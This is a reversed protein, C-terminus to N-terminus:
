VDFRQHVGGNLGVPRPVLQASERLEPYRQVISAYNAKYEGFVAVTKSAESKSLPPHYPGWEIGPNALLNETALIRISDIMMSQEYEALRLAIDVFSDDRKVACINTQIITGADIESDILHATVAQPVGNLVAWPINDLGRNEPLLGPHTNIIGIRFHNIVHKSLIRAGLIVGIDPSLEGLLEVIQDSNHDGVVCPMEFRTTLEQLEYLFRTDPSVRIQPEPVNLQKYNQGIVLSPKIGAM